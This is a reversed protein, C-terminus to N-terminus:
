DQTSKQGRHQPKTQGCGHGCYPLLITYTAPTTAPPPPRAKRRRIRRRAASARATSRRAACRGRRRAPRRAGSSGRLTLLVVYLRRWRRRPTTNRSRTDSGASGIGADAGGVPATSRRGSMPRAAAGDPESESERWHRHRIMVERRPGERRATDEGPATWAVARWSRAAAQAQRRGGRRRARRGGGSSSSSRSRTDSGASGIGADAGGVPAAQRQDRHGDRRNAM